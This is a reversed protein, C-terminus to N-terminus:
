LLQQAHRDRRFPSWHKRQRQEKSRFKELEAELRRTRMREEVRLALLMALRQNVDSWNQSRERLIDDSYKLTNFYIPDWSKESLIDVTRLHPDVTERVCVYSLFLAIRDVRDSDIPSNGFDISRIRKFSPTADSIEPIVNADLCLGLEELNHCYEALPILAGLTLKPDGASWFDKALNFSILAPCSCAISAIDGDTLSVAYVYQLSFHTLHKYSLIPSLTEITVNEAFGEMPPQNPFFELRLQGLSSCKMRCHALLDHLQAPSVENLSRIYLMGLHSAFSPVGLVVMVSSIDAEINFDALSPFSNQSPVYDFKAIDEVDGEGSHSYEWQIVRLAPLKEVATLISNTIWYRPLVLEELRSLGRLLEILEREVRVVSFSAIIDLTTLNPLRASIEVLYAKAEKFGEGALFPGDLKVSLSKVSPHM